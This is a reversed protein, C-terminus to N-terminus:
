MEPNIYSGPGPNRNQPDITMKKDPISTKQRLSYKPASSSMLKDNKEYQSASPVTLQEKPIYSNFAVKQM